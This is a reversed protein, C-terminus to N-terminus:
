VEEEEEEEGEDDDAAGEADDDADLTLQGDDCYVAAVWPNDVNDNFDWDEIQSLDVAKAIAIAEFKNRAEVELSGMEIITHAIRIEYTPM